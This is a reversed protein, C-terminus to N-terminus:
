TDIQRHVLYCCVAAKHFITWFFPDNWFYKNIQVSLQSKTGENAEEACEVKFWTFWSELSKSISLSGSKFAEATSFARVGISSSWTSHVEQDYKQQGLGHHVFYESEQQLPDHQVGGQKQFHRLSLSWYYWRLFSNIPDFFSEFVSCFISM